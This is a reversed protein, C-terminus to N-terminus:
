ALNLLVGGAESGTLRRSKGDASVITTLRRRKVVMNPTLAVDIQPTFQLTIRWLDPKITEEVGIIRADFASAMYTGSVNQGVQYPAIGKPSVSATPRADAQVALSNWDRSGSQRAVLDLAKGHSIDIGNESLAQRLRKAQHKYDNPITGTQVSTM